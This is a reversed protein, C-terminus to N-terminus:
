RRVPCLDNRLVADADSKGYVHAVGWKDRIITVNDAYREWKAQEGRTGEGPSCSIITMVLLSLLTIRKLNCIVKM